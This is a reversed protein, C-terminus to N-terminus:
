DDEQTDEPKMEKVPFGIWHPKDLVMYITSPEHYNNSLDQYPAIWVRQIREGSRLPGGPYADSASKWSAHAYHGSRDSSRNREGTQYDGASAQDNIQSVPTCSDGAKANCGFSGNMGACGTITLSLAFLAGASTIRGKHRM